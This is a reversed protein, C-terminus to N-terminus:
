YKTSRRHRAAAFVGRPGTEGLAAVRSANSNMIEIYKPKEDLIVTILDFPTIIPDQELSYSM